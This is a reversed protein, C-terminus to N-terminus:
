VDTLTPGAIDADGKKRRRREPTQSDGRAPVEGSESQTEGRRDFTHRSVDANGRSITVGIAAVRAYPHDSGAVGVELLMRNVDWEVLIRQMLSLSCDRETLAPLEIWNADYFTVEFLTVELWPRHKVTQKAVDLVRVHLV